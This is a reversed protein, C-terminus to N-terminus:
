PRASSAQYFPTLPTQLLTSTNNEEFYNLLADSAVVSLKRRAPREVVARVAAQPAQKQWRQLTRVSVKLCAAIEKVTHGRSRMNAAIVRHDQSRM